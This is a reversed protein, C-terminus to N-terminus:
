FFVHLEIARSWLRAECDDTGIISDERLSSTGLWKSVTCLDPDQDFKCVCPDTRCDGAVYEVSVSIEFLFSGDVSVCVRRDAIFSRRLDSAV